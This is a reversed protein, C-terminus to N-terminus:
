CGDSDRIECGRFQSSEEEGDMQGAADSARTSGGVQKREKRRWGGARPSRGWGGERKDRDTEGFRDQIGPNRQPRGQGTAADKLGGM